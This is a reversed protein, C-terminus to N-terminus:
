ATEVPTGDDGASLMDDEQTVRAYDFQGMALGEPPLEFAGEAVTMELSEGTIEDYAYDNGSIVQNVAYQSAAYISDKIQRIMKMTMDWAYDYSSYTGPIPRETIVNTAAMVALGGLIEGFAAVGKRGRFMRESLESAAASATGYIAEFAIGQALGQADSYNRRMTERVRGLQLYRAASGSARETATMDDVSFNGESSFLVKRLSSDKYSVATVASQAIDTFLGAVRDNFTIDGQVMSFLVPIALLSMAAGTGHQRKAAKDAEVLGATRVQRQYRRDAAALQEGLAAEQQFYFKQMETNFRNGGADATLRLNEEVGAILKLTDTDNNEIAEAKRANLAAMQAAQATEFAGRTTQEAIEKAVSTTPDPPATSRYTPRVRLTDSAKPDRVGTTQM